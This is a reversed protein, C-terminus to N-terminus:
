AKAVAKRWSLADLRGAGGTLKIFADELTSTGSLEVIEAVTGVAAVKGHDIIAIRDCVEEMLPLIHSSVFVTKGAKEALDKILDRVVLSALPDLASTPEDLFVIPPDHILAAAILVKQKMGRSFGELLDDGRQKLDFLELLREARDRLLKREVDYLSGVFELYEKPSLKEYLGPSEALLGTSRKVENIQTSIDYGNVVARGSTPRIIGNLMRITTTKGSGNPGLLGFTEGPYVTLSLGDVARVEGRRGYRKSLSDVDIIPVKASADSM